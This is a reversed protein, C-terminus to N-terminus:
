VLVSYVVIVDCMYMDDCTSNIHLVGVIADCMYVDDCCSTVNHIVLM